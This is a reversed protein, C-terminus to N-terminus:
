LGDQVEHGRLCRYAVYLIWLAFGIGIATNLWSAAFFPFLMMRISRVAEFHTWSFADWYFIRMAVYCVAAFGLFLALLALATRILAHSRFCIAGILAFVHAGLYIRIMLWSQSSFPSFLPQRADILWGTLLNGVWDIISFAVVAYLVFLPGTLLYRSVFRELNSCPLMLYRYRELPHHMDQFSASTFVLGGVPLYIAFWMGNMPTAPADGATFNTLYILVTFGLLALTGFLLPRSIRLADNQIVRTFRPLSFQSM